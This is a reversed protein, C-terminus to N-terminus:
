TGRPRKTLLVPPAKKPTLRGIRSASWDYRNNFNFILPAIVGSGRICEYIECPLESNKIM